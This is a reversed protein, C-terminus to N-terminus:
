AIDDGKARAKGLGLRPFPVVPHALRKQHYDIQGIELATGLGAHTVDVRALAITQGLIHSRTAFAM